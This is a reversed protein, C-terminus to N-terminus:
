RTRKLYAASGTWNAVRLRSGVVGVRRSCSCSDLEDETSDVGSSGFRCDRKSPRRKPKSSYTTSSSIKGTRGATVELERRGDAVREYM